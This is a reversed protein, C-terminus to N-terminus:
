RLARASCPALVVSCAISSAVAPQRSAAIVGVYAPRRRARSASLPFHALRLTRPVQPEVAPFKAFAVSEIRWHSEHMTPIAGGIQRGGPPRTAGSEPGRRGRRRTRLVPQRRRRVLGRRCRRPLNRRTLPPRRGGVSASEGPFRRRRHRVRHAPAHMSLGSSRRAFTGSITSLVVKPKWGSSPPREGSALQFLRSSRFFVM